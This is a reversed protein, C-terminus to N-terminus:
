LKVSSPLRVTRLEVMSLLHTPQKRSGVRSGTCRAQITLEDMLRALRGLDLPRNLYDAVGLRFYELAVEPCYHDSLVVVSPTEHALAAEWMLEPVITEDEPQAVHVLGLSVDTLSFISRAEGISTCSEIECNRISRGAQAVSELLSKDHSLLLVTATFVIRGWM